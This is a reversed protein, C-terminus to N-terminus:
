TEYPKSKIQSQTIFRILLTSNEFMTGLKTLTSLQPPKQFPYAFILHKTPLHLRLKVIM